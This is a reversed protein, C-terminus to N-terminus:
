PSSQSLGCAVDYMAHTSSHWAMTPSSDNHCKLCLDTRTEARINGHPDHCTACDLGVAGCIQHSAAIEQQPAMNAHCRYCINPTIAGLHHSQSRLTAMDVPAQEKSQEQYSALLNRSSQEGEATEPLPKLPPANYHSTHCDTCAM